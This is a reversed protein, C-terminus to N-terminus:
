SGTPEGMARVSVADIGDARLVRKVLGSLVRGPGIEYFTDIGQDTLWRVTDTWRVSATLQDELERTIDPVETIPEARVNAVVPVSARGIAAAGLVARFKEAAPGMLASHAAITIPLVAVKKAGIEKLRHGASEVAGTTGSIVVQGPCNYNAVQVGQHAECVEEVASDPLGLIAAMRGPQMQGAERMLRGRERVLKLGQNYSLSKAAVLATYEGLSHGAVYDPESLEASAGRLVAISAALIAPQQNYTDNLEGEPGAAVLAPLDFGLVDAAETLASRAATSRRAWAQAMGVHQSGQGPFLWATKM